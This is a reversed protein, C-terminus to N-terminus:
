RPRIWGGLAAELEGAVALVEADHDRRGIVQVALPLGDVDRGAPVSAAPLGFVNAYTSLTMKGGPRAPEGDVTTIGESAVPATVPVVPCLLIPHGTLFDGVAHEFERLELTTQFYAALDPTVGAMVSAFGAGYRSLESERGAVLPPFLLAGEIGLLTDFVRRADAMHPPRAEVPEHGADALASAARRVAARQASAVPQLGDDEYVAIRRRAGTAPWGPRVAIVDMALALDAVTRAMPGMSGFREFSPPVGASLHGRTPVLGATPKLGVIGTWAAPNRISSGLDSGLGLPSMGSAIAASEGGSSGGPTREPDHPNRTRGYVLNDTDYFCCFEPTNTVGVVIAGARRLSTVAPADEEALQGAFLKSGSTFPMGRCAIVEKITVPVGHLPGVPDGAALAGDAEAAEARADAFREAVIANLEPNCEEIRAIHRELVEAASIERDRIATAIATAGIATVDV